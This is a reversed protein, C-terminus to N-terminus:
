SSRCLCKLRALPDSAEFAAALASPSDGGGPTRFLSGARSGTRTVNPESRAVVALELHGGRAPRDCRSRGTLRYALDRASRFVGIVSAAGHTMPAAASSSSGMDPACPWSPVRGDRRGGGTGAASTFRRYPDGAEHPWRSTRRVQTRPRPRPEHCRGDSRRIDPLHATLADTRHECCRGLGDLQQDKRTCMPYVFRECATWAFWRRWRDSHKHFLPDLSQGRKGVSGPVCKCPPTLPELGRTEM